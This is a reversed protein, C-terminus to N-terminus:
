LKELKYASLLALVETMSNAKPTHVGFVGFNFTSKYLLDVRSSVFVIVENQVTKSLEDLTIEDDSRILIIDQNPLEPHKLRLYNRKSDFYSSNSTATIQWDALEEFLLKQAERLVEGQVRTVLVPDDMATEKSTM